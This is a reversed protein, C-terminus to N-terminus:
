LCQEIWAVIENVLEDVPKDGDLVLDASSLLRAVQVETSHKEIAQIEASGTIGKSKLRITHDEKDLNIYILTIVCPAVLRRLTQVVELHRVGDVILPRGPNWDAQFPGSNM